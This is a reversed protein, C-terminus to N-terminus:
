SPAPLPTLLDPAKRAEGRGHTAPCTGVPYSIMSTRQGFMQDFLRKSDKMERRQQQPTLGNLPMLIMQSLLLHLLHGGVANGNLAM